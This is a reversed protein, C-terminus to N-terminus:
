VAVGDNYAYVDCVDAGIASLLAAIALNPLTNASARQGSVSHTTAGIDSKPHWYNLGPFYRAVRDPCPGVAPGPRRM